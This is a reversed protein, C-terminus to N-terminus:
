FLVINEVCLEKKLIHDFDRMFQQSGCVLFQDSNCPKIEVLDDARLKREIIPESYMVKNKNDNWRDSLYIHYQFNWYSKFEYLENRFLIENLSKCCFFLVLKTMNDEDNLIQDIIYIFPAIGTGQAIMVIRKFKNELVNYHGYPGRWLTEHGKELTFLYQSVLGQSYKKVIILFDFDELYSKKLKIPTYARSCSMNGDNYKLLFHDGANWFIKTNSDTRLKKFKLIRLNETLEVIDSIFFSSYELQSIGNEETKLIEDNEKCKKYLQLQKEFVEFICPNCGSNCCDEKNPEIPPKMTLM